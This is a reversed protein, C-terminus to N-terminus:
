IIVAASGPEATELVYQKFHQKEKIFVWGSLIECLIGGVVRKFTQITLFQANGSLVTCFCFESPASVWFRESEAYGSGINRVLPFRTESRRMPMLHFTWLLTWRRAAFLLFFVGFGSSRVALLEPEQIHSARTQSPM